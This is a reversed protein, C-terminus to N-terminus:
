PRTTGYARLIAEGQAHATFRHSHVLGKEALAEREGLAREIGDAIAEASGPDARVAADGSAEDMSRHASAVVPTGCAM